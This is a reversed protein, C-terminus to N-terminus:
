FTKTCTSKGRFPAAFICFRGRVILFYELCRKPSLFNRGPLSHYQASVSYCIHFIARIFIFCSYRSGMGAKPNQGTAIPIPPKSNGPGLEWVVIMSCIFRSSSYFSYVGQGFLPTMRHKCYATKLFLNSHYKNCFFPYLTLSRETM